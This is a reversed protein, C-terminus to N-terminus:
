FSGRLVKQYKPSFLAGNRSWSFEYHLSIKFLLWNIAKYIYFFPDRCLEGGRIRSWFAGSTLRAFIDSKARFFPLVEQLSIVPLSECLSM